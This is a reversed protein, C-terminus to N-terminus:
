SFSSAPILEAEIVMRHVDTGIQEHMIIKYM